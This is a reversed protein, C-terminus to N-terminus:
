VVKLEQPPMPGANSLGHSSGLPSLRSASPRQPLLFANRLGMHLSRMVQPNPTSGWEMVGGNM